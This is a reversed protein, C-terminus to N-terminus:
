FAYRTVIYSKGFQAIAEGKTLRDPYFNIRTITGSRTDSVVTTPGAFEGVKEYNTWTVQEGDDDRKSDRSWKPQGWARLMNALKSKGLTIGRYTAPRWQRSAQSARGAVATLLLVTMLLVKGVKTAAFSLKMVLSNNLRHKRSNM